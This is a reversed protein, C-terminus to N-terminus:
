VPEGVMQWDLRITTGHDPATEIHLQANIHAARETMNELGFRGARIHASDFGRGNDEILLMVGEVDDDQLVFVVATARAHKIINNVAEQAIRYFAIQVDAPLTLSELRTTVAAGTRGAVADALNTLLDALDAGTLVEPRLEYLITRMEATASRALQSLRFLTQHTSTDHEGYTLLNEIMLGASFLTQSVADHLDRAIRTRERLVALEGEQQRLRKLAMHSEVRAIVEQAHFPKGIYDVGGAQFGRVKHDVQDFGSIFIIPVDKLDGDAKFRRCLAFGDM